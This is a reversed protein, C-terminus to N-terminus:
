RRNYNSVPCDVRIPSYGRFFFTYENIPELFTGKPVTHTPSGILTGSYEELNERMEHTYSKNLAYASGNLKSALRVSRGSKPICRVLHRSDPKLVANICPVGLHSM